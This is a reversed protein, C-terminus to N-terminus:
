GVWKGKSRFEIDPNNPFGSVPVRAPRYRRVHQFWQASHRSDSQMRELAPWSRSRRLLYGVAIDAYVIDGNGSGADLLEIQHDCDVRHNGMKSARKANRNPNQQMRSAVPSPHIAVM